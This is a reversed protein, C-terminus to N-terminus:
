VQGAAFQRHNLSIGTDVVGIVQDKGWNAAAAMGPTLGIQTLWPAYSQPHATTGLTACALALQALGPLRRNRIQM